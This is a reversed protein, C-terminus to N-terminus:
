RFPPWWSRRRLTTPHTPDATVSDSDTSLFVLWGVPVIATEDTLGQYREALPFKDRYADTPPPIVEDLEGSRLVVVARLNVPLFRQLLQKLRDADRRVLPRGAPGREVYLGITGPTYLEDPALPGGDPQQPTYDLLDGFHGRGRNRDLDAPTATISGAFRRIAAEEPARRSDDAGTEGPVGGGLRGLAVNRDSRFLLLQVGGPLTVPAPNSDAAPGTLTVAPTTVV